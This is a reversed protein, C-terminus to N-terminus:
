LILVLATMIDLHNAWMLIISQKMVYNFFDQVNVDEELPDINTVLFLGLLVYDEDRPKASPVSGVFALM